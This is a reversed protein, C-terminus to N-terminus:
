IYHFISQCYTKMSFIMNTRLLPLFSHDAMQFNVTFWITLKWSFNFNRIYIDYVMPITIVELNLHYIQNWQALCCTNLWTHLGIIGHRMFHCRWWLKQLLLSKSQSQKSHSGNLKASQVPLTIRITPTILRVESRVAISLSAFSVM